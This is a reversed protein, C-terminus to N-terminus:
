KLVSNLNARQTTNLQSVVRKLQESSLSDWVAKVKDVPSLEFQKLADQVRDAQSPTLDALKCLDKATVKSCMDCITSRFVLFLTCLIFLIWTYSFLFKYFKYDDETKFTMCGNDITSVKYLLFGLSIFNLLIFICFFGLVIKGFKLLPGVTIARLTSLIYILTALQIFIIGSVSLFMQLQIMFNINSLCYKSTDPVQIEKTTTQDKGDADKVTETQTETRTGYTASVIKNTTYFVSMYLPILLLMILKFISENM